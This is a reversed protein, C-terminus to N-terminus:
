RCYKKELIATDIGFLKEELKNKNVYYTTLRAKKKNVMLIDDREILGKIIANLQSIDALRLEKVVEAKKPAWVLNGNEDEQMKLSIYATLMLSRSKTLLYFVDNERVIEAMDLAIRQMFLLDKRLRQRLDETVLLRAAIVHKSSSVISACPGGPYTDYALGITGVIDGPRKYSIFEDHLVCEAVGDLIVFLYANLGDYYESLLYESTKYDYIEFQNIINRDQIFESLLSVAKNVYFNNSNDIKLPKKTEIAVRIIEKRGEISYGDLNSLM